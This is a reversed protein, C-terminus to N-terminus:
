LGVASKAYLEVTHRANPEIDLDRLAARAPMWIFEEAEENLVVNKSGVRVVNDVFVHSVDKLYYGSYKIQDFTALHEGVVGQLGSEERVERLLAEALRENRRVKGGIISYRGGWKHTKVLLIEQEKKSSDAYEIIGGVTVVSGPVILDEWLAQIVLENQHVEPEPLKGYELIYETLLEPHWVSNKHVYAPHNKPAEMFFCRVNSLQAIGLEYSASAGIYGEPDIFYSFGSPGLKKLNHLYRLEILRQDVAKDSELIAFGDEFRAIDAAAPALVEIGAREFIQRVRQIEAFHKRFSGHIVARFQASSRGLAPQSGSSGKIPKPDM